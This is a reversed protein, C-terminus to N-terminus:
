KQLFGNCACAGSALKRLGKKRKRREKNCTQDSKNCSHGGTVLARVTKNRKRSLKNCGQM